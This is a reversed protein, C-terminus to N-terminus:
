IEDDGIDDLEQEDRMPLVEEMTKNCGKFMDKTNQVNEMSFSGGLTFDNPLGNQVGWRLQEMQMKSFEPKAYVQVQEMTLDNEFGLRIQHMYECDFKSDAYFQIQETSLGNEFGQRIERIQNENFEKGRTVEDMMEQLKKEDM